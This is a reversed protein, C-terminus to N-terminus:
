GGMCNTLMLLFCTFVDDTGKSHRPGCVTTEHHLGCNSGQWQPPSHVQSGRQFWTGQVRAAQLCYRCSLPCCGWGPSVTTCLTNSNYAMVDSYVLCCIRYSKSIKYFGWFMGVFRVCNSQYCSSAYRACFSIHNEVLPDVFILLQYFQQLWHISREQLCNTKRHM